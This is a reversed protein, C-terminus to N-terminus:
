KRHGPKEPGPPGGRRVCGARQALDLVRRSGCKPCHFHIDQAQAPGEAANDKGVAGRSTDGQQQDGKEIIDTEWLHHCDGCRYRNGKLNFSGGEIRIAKGQTIAEAIKRHASELIRACTPRSINMKGAAGKQDLGELDVLRIAEYEDVGLVIQELHVMPIGQPKFYVASPPYMVSRPKKPKSM